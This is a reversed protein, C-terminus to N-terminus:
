INALTGKKEQACLESCKGAEKAMHSLELWHFTPWISTEGKLGAEERTIKRKREGDAPQTSFWLPSLAQTVMQLVADWSPQKVLFVPGFQM